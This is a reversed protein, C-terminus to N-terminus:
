ASYISIYSTVGLLRVYMSSRMAFADAPSKPGRNTGHSAVCGQNSLQRYTGKSRKTLTKLQIYGTYPAKCRIGRSRNRPLRTARSGTLWKSRTAQSVAFLEANRPTNTTM